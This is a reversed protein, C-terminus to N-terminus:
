RRGGRARHGRGHWLFRRRRLGSYVVQVHVVERRIVQRPARFQEGAATSSCVVTQRRVGSCRTAAGYSGVRIARETPLYAADGALQVVFTQLARSRANIRDGYDLYYEFRNSCTAVDGLRLVHLEVPLTLREGRQQAHYPDIVQRHFSRSAFARSYDRSMPDAAALAALQEEALAVQREADTLDAETRSAWGILLSPAPEHKTHRAQIVRSRPGPWRRGQAPPAM